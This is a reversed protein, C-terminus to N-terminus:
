HFDAVLDPAHELHDAPEWSIESTLYGKWKVRYQLKGRFLRSDLIEEVEYETSGEIEVPPPPPPMRGNIRDDQRRHLLEVHFVPHIKYSAPLKLRYDMPGVQAEVEFPGIRKDALKKSPQTTKINKTDLWVLDGVKFQDAEQVGRDYHRKMREAAIELSAKAEEQIAKLQDARADADPVAKATSGPHVTWELDHGYLTRFPSSNTASHASNNRAFECIPLLQAWNTQRYNVFTRIYQEVEQNVRETQGDSRPHFATSYSLTIGLREALRRYWKAVFQTGRDSIVQRPTGHHKWVNQLFLDAITEASATKVTPALHCQKTFRDVVVMISDFGDSPPLDVILDM